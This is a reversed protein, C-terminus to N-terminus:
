ALGAAKRVVHLNKRVASLNVEARTPRVADAPAARRPKQVRPTPSLPSLPEAPLSWSAVM